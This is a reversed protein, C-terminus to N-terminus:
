MILCLFILADNSLVFVGNSGMIKANDYLFVFIYYYNNKKFLRLKIILRTM